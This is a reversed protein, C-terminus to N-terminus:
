FSPQWALRTLFDNFLLQGLDKVFARNIKISQSFIPLGSDLNITQLTSKSMKPHMHSAAKWVPVIRPALQFNNAYSQGQSDIILKISQSQAPHGSDLKIM